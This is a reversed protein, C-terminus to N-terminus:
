FHFLCVVNVPIEPYYLHSNKLLPIIIEQIIFTMEFWDNLVGRDDLVSCDDLVSRIWCM